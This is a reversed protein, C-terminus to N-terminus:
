RQDPPVYGAIIGVRKPDGAPRQGPPLRDELPLTRQPNDNPTKGLAKLAKTEARARIADRIAQARTRKPRMAQRYADAEAALAVLKAVNVLISAGVRGILGAAELAIVHCRVAQRSIGLTAGHHALSRRPNKIIRELVRLTGPRHGILQRLHRQSTWYALLATKRQSTNHSIAIRRRM